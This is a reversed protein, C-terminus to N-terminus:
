GEKVKPKDFKERRQTSIQMMRCMGEKDENERMNRLLTFQNIFNDMEALLFQKNSIFLESWM